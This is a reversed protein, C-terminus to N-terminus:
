RDLLCKWASDNKRKKQRRGNKEPERERKRKRENKEKKTRQSVLARLLVSPRIIFVWMRSKGRDSGWSRHTWAKKDHRPANIEAAM